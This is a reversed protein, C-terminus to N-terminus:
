GNEDVEGWPLREVLGGTLPHFGHTSLAVRPLLKSLATELSPLQSVVIQAGSEVLIAVHEALEPVLYCVSLPPRSQSRIAALTLCLQELQTEDWLAWAALGTARLGMNQQYLRLDEVRTLRVKVSQRTAWEDLMAHMRATFVNSNDWSTWHLAKGYLLDSMPACSIKGRRWPPFM